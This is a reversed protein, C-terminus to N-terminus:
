YAKYIESFSHKLMGETFFTNNESSINELHKTIICIFNNKQIDSKLSDTNIQLKYNGEQLNKQIFFDHLEHNIDNNGVNFGSQIVFNGVKSSTGNSNEKFVDITIPEMTEIKSNIKIEPISKDKGINFTDTKVEIKKGSLALTSINEIAGIKECMDKFINQNDRNQYASSISIFQSIFDQPNDNFPDANKANNLIMKILDDPNMANNRKSETRLLESAFKDGNKKREVADLLVENYKKTNGERKFTELQYKNIAASQQSNNIM